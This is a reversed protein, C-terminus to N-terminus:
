ADEVLREVYSGAVAKSEETCRDLVAVLASLRVTSM